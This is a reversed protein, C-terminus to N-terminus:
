NISIAKPKKEEPKAVKLELIGNKMTAKIKEQNIGRPLRFSRSFKGARTEIRHYNDKKADVDERREGRIWLTDDKVEINVDKKELGPVEVKFIYEEETEYIDTLPCWEGASYEQENKDGHFQSGFMRNMRDFMSDFERM